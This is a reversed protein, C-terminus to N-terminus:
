SLHELRRRAKAIQRKIREAMQALADRGAAAEEDVSLKIRYLSDQRIRKIGFEVTRLDEKLGLLLSALDQREDAGKTSACFLQLDDDELLTHLSDMDGESYARSAEAMIAHRRRAEDEDPAHDPHFVKAVSWFLKRLTTKYSPSKTHARQAEDEPIARAEEEEDASEVGLRSAEAERIALEVEALESLRSGVVQTYRAKFQRFEESLATLEGRREELLAELREVELAQRPEGERSASSHLSISRM